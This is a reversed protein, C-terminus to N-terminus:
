KKRFLLTNKDYTLYSRISKNVIKLDQLKLIINMCELLDLHNMKNNSAQKNNMYTIYQTGLSYLINKCFQVGNLDVKWLNDMRIIYKNRSLDVCWISREEPKKNKCYLDNVLNSIGKETDTYIYKGMNEIKDPVVINPANPYNNIIYQTINNNSNNNNSNTITGKKLYDIETDKIDHELKHNQEKLRLTGETLININNNLNINNQQLEM